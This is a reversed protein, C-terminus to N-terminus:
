PRARGREDRVRRSMAFEWVSSVRQRTSDRWRKAVAKRDPGPRKVDPKDGLDYLARPYAIRSGEEDYVYGCIYIRKPVSKLTRNLRSVVSAVELKPRGLARCLGARTMPGDRELLALIGLVIPGPPKGSM